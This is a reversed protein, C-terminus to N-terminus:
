QNLQDLFDEAKLAVYLPSYARKFFLIAPLSKKRANVEAQALAKWIALSESHKMEIAFGFWEAAKPSLHLDCGGQSTAKVWVDDPKLVPIRRLLLDRVICAGKWGKAKSSRGGGRARGRRKAIGAIEEKAERLQRLAAIIERQSAGSARLAQRIAKTVDVGASNKTRITKKAQYDDPLLKM